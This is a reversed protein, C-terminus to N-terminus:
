AGRRALVARAGTMLLATVTTGDEQAAARLEALLGQDIRIFIPTRGLVTLDIQAAPAQVNLKPTLKQILEAELDLAERASACYFVEVLGETSGVRKHTPSLPRRVGITSMGVYLVVDDVDRVVYVIPRRGVPIVLDAKRAVVADELLMAAASSITRRERQAIVEIDSVVEPDLRIGISQKPM